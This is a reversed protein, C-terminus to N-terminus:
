GVLRLQDGAPWGRAGKISNCRHHAVQVNAPEHTGGAALPVVHDLAYTSERVPHRCLQCIGRDRQYIAAPDVPSVFAARKRARRTTTRRRRSGPTRRKDSARDCVKCNWQRHHFQEVPKFTECTRCFREGQMRHKTREIVWASREVGKKRFYSACSICRGNSDWPRLGCVVCTRDTIPEPREVGRRRLYQDCNKCRGRRTPAHLVGCNRCAREVM